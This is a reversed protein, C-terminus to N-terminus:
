IFNTNPDGLTGTIGSASAENVACFSSAATELATVAGTMEVSKNLDGVELRFNATLVRKATLNIGPRTDTKFGGRFVERRYDGVSLWVPSIAVAVSDPTAIERLGTGENLLTWPLRAGGPNM